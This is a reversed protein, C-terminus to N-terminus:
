STPPPPSSTKTSGPPFTGTSKPSLKQPINTQHHPKPPLSSGYAVEGSAEARTRKKFEETFPVDNIFTWPYKFKRNFTRELDRMSKLLDELENNRVLSLLTANALPAEGPGFLRGGTPEETKALLPDIGKLSNGIKPRIFTGLRLEAETAAPTTHYIHLILLLFLVIAFIAAGRPGVQGQLLM